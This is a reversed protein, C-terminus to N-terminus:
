GTKPMRGFATALIQIHELVDDTYDRIEVDTFKLLMVGHAELALRRTEDVTSTGDEVAVTVDIGLKISPCYFDIIYGAVAHDHVFRFGPVQGSTLKIWLILKGLTGPEDINRALGKLYGRNNSSTKHYNMDSHTENLTACTPSSLM